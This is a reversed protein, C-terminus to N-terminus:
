YSLPRTEIIIINEVLPIVAIRYEQLILMLYVTRKDRHISISGHYRPRIVGAVCCFFFLAELYMYSYHTNSCTSFYIKKNRLWFM